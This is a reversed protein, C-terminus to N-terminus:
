SGNAKDQLTKIAFEKDEEWWRQLNAYFLVESRVFNAIDNMQGCDSHLSISASTLRTLPELTDQIDAEQRSTVCIRLNPLNLKVFKEVLTLVERRQENTFPCEDLADIILYVPVEHALAVRLMDELCQTLADVSPPQSNNRHSSYLRLPDNFLDNSQDSLQVILSSLLSRANSKGPDMFDFFFFGFHGPETDNIDKIITSSTL